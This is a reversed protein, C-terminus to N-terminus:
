RDPVLRWDHPQRTYPRVLIYQRLRLDDEFHPLSRREACRRDLLIHLQPRGGFAQQLARFLEPHDRAAILLSPAGPAPPAATPQSTVPSM